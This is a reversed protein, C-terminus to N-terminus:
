WCCCFYYRVSSLQYFFFWEVNVLNMGYYIMASITGSSVWCGILMGIFVVIIIAQSVESIGKLIGEIIQDIGYGLRFVFCFIIFNLFLFSLGLPLEFFFSSLLLLVGSLVFVFVSEFFSVEKIGKNKLM